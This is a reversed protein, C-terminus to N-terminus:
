NSCKKAVHKKHTASDKIFDEVIKKFASQPYAGTKKLKIDGNKVFLTAPIGDPAHKRAFEIFEKNEINITVFEAQHKYEQAVAEFAPTFMTCAGCWTAWLKIIVPKKGAILKKYEQMTAVERVGHDRKKNDKKVEQKKEIKKPAKKDLLREVNKEFKEQSEAGVQTDVVVGDKLFIITPIGDKAYKDSIHDLAKTDVDIKLFQVKDTFKHASKEFVPGMMKCAGCWTASFMVVTPKKSALARDYEQTTKILTYATATPAKQKRTALSDTSTLVSAIILFSLFSHLFIM